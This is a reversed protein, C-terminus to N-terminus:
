GNVIMTVPLFLPTSAPTRLIEVVIQALRVPSDLRVLADVWVLECRTEGGQGLVEICEQTVRRTM